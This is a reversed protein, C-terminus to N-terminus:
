IEAYSFLIIAKLQVPFWVLVTRTLTQQSLEAGCYLSGYVVCNALLPRRKVLERGAHFLRSLMKLRTKVVANPSIGGAHSLQNRTPHKILTFRLYSLVKRIRKSPDCIWLLDVVSCILYFVLTCSGQILVVQGSFWFDFQYTLVHDRIRVSQNTNRELQHVDVKGGFGQCKTQPMTAIACSSKFYRVKM